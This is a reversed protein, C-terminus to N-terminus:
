ADIRVTRPPDESRSLVAAAAIQGHRLARADDESLDRMPVALARLGREIRQARGVIGVHSGLASAIDSTAAPGVGVTLFTRLAEDIAAATGLRITVSGPQQDRWRYITQRTVGAVDAVATVQQGDELAVRVAAMLANNADRAATAALRVGTLGVPTDDLAAMPDHDSM